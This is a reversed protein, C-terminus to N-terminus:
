GVAVLSDPIGSKEAAFLGTPFFLRAQTVPSTVTTHNPLPALRSPDFVGANLAKFPLMALYLM